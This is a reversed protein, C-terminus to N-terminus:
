WINFLRLVIGIISTCIGAFASSAFSALLCEFFIRKNLKGKFYCFCFFTTFIIFLLVAICTSVLTIVFM